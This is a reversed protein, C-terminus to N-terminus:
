SRCGAPAIGHEEAWRHIHGLTQPMVPGATMMHDSGPIEVYTGRDGYRRATARNMAPTCCRDKEGAIVLVPADIKAFDVRARRRPDLFWLAMQRYVKGSEACLDEYWADALAPPGHQLHVQEM